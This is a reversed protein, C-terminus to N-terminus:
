REPDERQGSAWSGDVRPRHLWWKLAGMILPSLPRVFPRIFRFRAFTERRFDAATHRQYSLLRESESTINASILM